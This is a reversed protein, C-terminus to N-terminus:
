KVVVTVAPMKDLVTQSTSGLFFRAIAGRGHSGVVVMRAERALEGIRHAPFEREVVRRIDFGAGEPLHGALATEVDEEAQRQAGALYDGPYATMTAPLPVPQWTHVVTLPEGIREAEAIAFNLARGGPASADLGVVVGRRGPMEADPVVAVPCNAGAVIRISHAGRHVPPGARHDSDAGIVLLDFVTSADILEDVPNGREVRTDVAIGRRRLRDAELELMETMWRVSEEIIGREGVAGVTGGLVAMLELRSGRQEARESAWALARRAADSDTMGVMISQEM